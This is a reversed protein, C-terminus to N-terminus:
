YWAIVFVAAQGLILMLWGVGLWRGLRDTGDVPLRWRGTAYLTGWAAFLMWPVRPRLQEWISYFDVFVGLPFSDPPSPSGGYPSPPEIALLIGWHIAFVLAFSGSIIAAIAGPGFPGPCGLGERPRLVVVALGVGLGALLATVGSLVRIAEHRREKVWDPLRTAQSARSRQGGITVMYERDTAVALLVGVIAFAALIALDLSRLPRGRSHIM